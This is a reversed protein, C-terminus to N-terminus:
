KSARYKRYTLWYILLGFPGLFIVLLAWLLWKGRPARPSRELLWITIVLSVITVTVWIPKLRDFIARSGWGFLPPLLVPHDELYQNPDDLAAANEEMCPFSEFGQLVTEVYFASVDVQWANAAVYEAHDLAMQHSYEELSHSIDGAGPAHVDLMMVPAQCSFDLQEFDISRIQPNQNTRFHIQAGAPDFVASWVTDEVSVAKLADFAYTVASESSTPEFAKVWQAATVFRTLFDGSFNPLFGLALVQVPVEPPLVYKSMDEPLTAMELVLTVPNTEGPHLATLSVEDGATHQTLVSFFTDISQEGVLAVGDIATIWDKERIGAKAAPGDPSVGIAEVKWYIGTELATLADQYSSNALAKVPLSAGAYVVMKGNLFEIIACEGTRDCVLYHDYEMTSRAIADSAIVEDITSHNDLQYQIWFPSWLPPRADPAQAVTDLLSMTSIMLGAENMGGWVLQYAAANFTVSGYKSIWRAYKGSTSPEWATKLVHRKNVFAQGVQLTGHDMNTGFVCHDGNDLCFSTCAGGSAELAIQKDVLISTPETHPYGCNMMVISLALYIGFLRQTNM